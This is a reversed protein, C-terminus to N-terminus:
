RTVIPGYRRIAQEHVRKWIERTNVRAGLQHLLNCLGLEARSVFAFEPNTLKHKLARTYCGVLNKLLDPKGFEVLVNGREPEPFLIDVLARLGKLM